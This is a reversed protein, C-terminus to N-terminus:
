TILHVQPLNPKYLNWAAQSVQTVDFISPKHWRVIRISTTKASKTCLISNNFFKWNILIFEMNSSLCVDGVVNSITGETVRVQFPFYKVFFMQWYVKSVFLFCVVLSFCSLFFLSPTPQNNWSHKWKLDEGMRLVQTLFFFSSQEIYLPSIATRLTWRLVFSLTTPM